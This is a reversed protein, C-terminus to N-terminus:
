RQERTLHFWVRLENWLMSFGFVLGCLHHYAKRDTLNHGSDNAGHRIGVGAKVATLHHPFTFLSGRPGNFIQGLGESPLM